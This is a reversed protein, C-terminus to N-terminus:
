YGYFRLNWLFDEFGPQFEPLNPTLSLLASLHGGASGGTTVIFDPDGGYSAINEKVWKLARKCDIIHDPFTALPSLRYDISVCIWDKECLYNMLPLAQENKSGMRYTWAGGHIQFLVPAPKNGGKHLDQATRRQRRIDLKLDIGDAHHYFINKISEVKSSRFGTHPLLIKKHQITNGFQNSLEPKIHSMYSIGLGERLGKEFQDRTIHAQFYYFSLAFWSCIFILLGLVGATGHVAGGAVFCLVIIVQLAIHHLALEGLLLGSIFSIAAGRKYRRIPHYLNYSACASLIALSLFFLKM